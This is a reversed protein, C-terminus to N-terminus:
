HKNNLLPRVSQELTAGERSGLPLLTPEDLDAWLCVGLYAQAPMPDAGCPVPVIRPRHVM